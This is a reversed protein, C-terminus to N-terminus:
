RSQSNGNYLAWGGRRSDPDAVRTDGGAPLVEFSLGVRERGGTAAADEGLFLGAAVGASGLEGVGNM